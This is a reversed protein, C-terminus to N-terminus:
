AAAQFASRMAFFFMASAVVAAVYPDREHAARRGLVLPYVVFVSYIALSLMMLQGWTNSAIQEIAVDGRCDLGRDGRRDCVIAGVGRGSLALIVSLNTVHAIM